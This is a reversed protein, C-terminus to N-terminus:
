TTPIIENEKLVVDHAGGERISERSLRPLHYLDDVSNIDEVRLGREVFLRRYYPVHRAAHRVTRRLREDQYARLQAQSMWQTRELNRRMRLIALPAFFDRLSFDIAM